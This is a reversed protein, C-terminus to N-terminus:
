GNRPGAELGLFYDRTIGEFYHGFNGSALETYLIKAWRKELYRRFSSSGRRAALKMQQLLLPLGRAIKDVYRFDNSSLAHNIITKRNKILIERIEPSAERIARGLRRLFGPLERVVKDVYMEDGSMLSRTIITRKFHILTQRVQRNRTKEATKDVRELLDMVLRTPESPLDLHHNAIAQYIITPRNRILIERVEGHARRRERRLGRLYAPLKKVVEDPYDLDGVLLAQHLLTGRNERLAESTEPDSRRTAKELNRILSPLVEVAEDLDSLDGSTFLRYGLSPGNNLLTEAAARKASDRSTSLYLSVGLLWGRAAILASVDRRHLLVDLQSPALGASLGILYTEKLYAGAERGMKKSIRHVGPYLGEGSLSKTTEVGWAKAVYQLCRPPSTAPGQRFVQLAGKLFDNALEMAPATMRGRPRDITGSRLLSIFHGASSTRPDLPYPIDEDETSLDAARGAVGNQYAILGHAELLVAARSFRDVGSRGAARLRDMFPRIPEPLGGDFHSALDARATRLLAISPGTHAWLHAPPQPTAGISVSAM